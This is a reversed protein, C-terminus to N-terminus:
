RELGGWEVLTFGKRKPTKSIKPETVNFKGQVPYFDMLIRIVTDPKPTVKLPFIHDIIKQDLFSIFYYDSYNFKSVWAILFDDIERGRLGLKKLTRVLFKPIKSRKVIWGSNSVPIPRTIAEWFLYPYKKDDVPNYIQGNPQAFINWGGLIEPDSDIIDEEPLVKVSIKRPIKPYLYIIPETAIVSLFHSSVFYLIRGFPDEFYLIPHKELFQEYSMTKDAQRSNMTNFKTGYENNMFSSIGTSGKSVYEYLKKLVEDNMDSNVYINKGAKTKGEIKLKSKSINAIGSEFYDNINITTKSMPKPDLTFDDKANYRYQLTTGDKRFIFLDSGYFNLEKEAIDPKATYVNGLIPHKFVVKFQEKKFIHTRNKMYWEYKPSAHERLFRLETKTKQYEIIKFLKLVDYKVNLDNKKGFGFEKFSLDNRVDFRKFANNDLPNSLNSLLIMENETQAFRVVYPINCDPSKCNTPSFLGNVLKKGKYKGTKFKGVEFFEAKFDANSVCAFEEGSKATSIHTSKFIPIPKHFEVVDSASMHSPIISKSIFDEFFKIIKKQKKSKSIELSSKGEGNKTKPSFGRNKVLDKVINIKDNKTYIHLLTNSEDIKLSKQDKPIEIFKGYSWGQLGGFQVEYWYHNEGDIEQQNDSKSLIKVVLKDPLVGLYKGKPKTRVMIDEGKVKGLKFKESSDQPYCPVVQLLLFIFLILKL